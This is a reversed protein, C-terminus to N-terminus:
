KKNPMERIVPTQVELMKSLVSELVVEDSISLVDRTETNVIAYPLETSWDPGSVDLLRWGSEWGDWLYKFDTMNQPTM